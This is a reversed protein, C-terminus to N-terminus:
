RYTVIQNLTFKTGDVPVNSNSEFKVKFPIKQGCIFGVFPISVRILLPNSNCFLSCLKKTEELHYPLKLDPFENLDDNRKITFQLMLKKNLRWPMDLCAKFIYKIEGKSAKFSAPLSAPLQFQFNYRHIGASMQVSNGFQQGILYTTQNMYVEKGLCTYSSDHSSSEVWKCEASGYVTFSLASFIISILLRNKFVSYM